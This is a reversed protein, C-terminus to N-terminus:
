KRNWKQEKGMTDEVREDSRAPHFCTYFLLAAPSGKEAASRNYFPLINM